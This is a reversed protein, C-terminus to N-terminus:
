ITIGDSGELLQDSMAKWINQLESTVLVEQSIYFRKDLLQECKQRSAESLQGIFQGIAEEDKLQQKPIRKGEDNLAAEYFPLALHMQQQRQLLYWISIGAFDIDGFYYFTHKVDPLPYQKDFLSFSGVIEYGAGYILTSFCTETLAPLLAEYTTKNEVILHYQEKRGINSPHIAFRLPEKVDVIQMTSWLGLRELVRRGGKHQIWKEDGVLQQSREPAPAPVKPLGHASVYNNIKTIYQLDQELQEQTLRYYADLSISSHLTLQLREITERLTKKASHKLIRYKYSLRPTQTTLGASKVPQLVNREVLQQVIEAFEEYTEPRGVMEELQSLTIFTGKFQILQNEVLRM